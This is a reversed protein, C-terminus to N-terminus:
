AQQTRSRIRRVKRIDRLLYFIVKVNIRKRIKWSNFLAKKRLTINIKNFKGRGTLQGTMSDQRMRCSLLNDPLKAFTVGCMMMRLWLEYDEGYTITEDYPYAQMVDTKFFATPHAFCNSKPLAKRITKHNSTHRYLDQQIADKDATNFLSICSFCGDIDNNNEMFRYQKELREPHCLDDADMRAIYPTKCGQIGKNLAASLGMNKTNQLISIRSDDYSQAIALSNDTSGDDIILLVFDKRTQSLLSDIAEALYPEDNYVSLVVTIQPQM